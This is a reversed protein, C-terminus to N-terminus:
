FSDKDWVVSLMLVGWQRENPVKVTSRNGNSSNCEDTM